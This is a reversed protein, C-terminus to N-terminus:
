IEKLSIIGYIIDRSKEFIDPIRVYKLTTEPDKHGITFQAL